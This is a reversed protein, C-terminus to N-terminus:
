NRIECRNCKVLPLLNYQGIYINSINFTLVYKLNKTNNENDVNDISSSNNSLIFTDESKQNNEYSQLLQELNYITKNDIYSKMQVEFHNGCKRIINDYRYMEICNLYNNNTNNIEYLEKNIDKAFRHIYNNIYNDISYLMNIFERHENMNLLLKIIINNNTNTNTLNNNKHIITIFKNNLEPTKFFLGDLFVSPSKYIIEIYKTKKIGIYNLYIMNVDFYEKKICIYNFDISKQRPKNIQEIMENNKEVCKKNSSTTKNIIKPIIKSIIKPTTNDITDDM